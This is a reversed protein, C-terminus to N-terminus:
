QRLKTEIPHRSPEDCIMKTLEFVMGGAVCHLDDINALEVLERSVVFTRHPSELTLFLLSM